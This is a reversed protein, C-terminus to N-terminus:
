GLEDPSLPRRQGHGYRALLREKVEDHPTLRGGAIDELGQRIDRLTALEDLLARYLENTAPDRKPMTALM